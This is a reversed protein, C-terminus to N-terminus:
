FALCARVANIAYKNVDYMSDYRMIYLYYAYYAPISRYESSSWYRDKWGDGGANQISRLIVDRNNLWYQCQGGSPLFWGSTKSPASCVTEYNVAHYVAPFADSLNWNKDKNFAVITQTNSYGNFGTTMNRDCGVATGDSGWQCFNGGNADRLALVYGHVKSMSITNGKSTYTGNDAWDGSDDRGAKLVIGICNDNETPAFEKPIIYWGSANDSSCFYDGIQMTYPITLPTATGGDIKYTKYSGTAASPTFTFVKSGDAYNGTIEPATATPNVIYRYSGDTMRCPKADSGTFDASTPVTYDAIDENTFDYVIKPLEIVALAMRHHMKFTLSITKGNKQATGTATMLDSATYGEAYKSQDAQPQWTSVLPAFFAADDTASADTQDKMDADEQYPYYLFYAEDKFGGTLTVGAEPQWTLTGDTAATATLKVNAYALEGGRVIYLGCEDGATFETTYGNEAARTQPVGASSGGNCDAPAYGGDTVTIALTQTGDAGVGPLEEQECSAALLVVAAVWITHLLNRKM